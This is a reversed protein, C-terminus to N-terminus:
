TMCEESSVEPPNSSSWTEQRERVCVCVWLCACECEAPSYTMSTFKCIGGQEIKLVYLTVWSWALLQWDLSEGKHNKKVKHTHTSYPHGHMYTHAPKIKWKMGDGLWSLTRTTPCAQLSYTTSQALVQSALLRTHGQPHRTKVSLVQWPQMHQVCPCRKAFCHGSFCKCPM